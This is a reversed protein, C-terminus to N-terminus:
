KKLAKIVKDTIDLHPDFWLPNQLIADFQEAEAIKKIVLNAQEILQAQEKQQRQSLDERFERQKRQLDRNLDNVERSRRLRESETMGPLDKDFKESLTKLREAMEQLAKDRAAFDQTISTQVAKASGSERFLRESDVVGIKVAQAQITACTSATAIAVLARRIRKDAHVSFNM